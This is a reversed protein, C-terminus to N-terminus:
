SQNTNPERNPRTLLQMSRSCDRQDTVFKNLQSYGKQTM